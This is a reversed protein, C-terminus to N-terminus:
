IYVCIGPYRTKAVLGTNRYREDITPANLKKREGLGSLEQCVHWYVHRMGFLSAYSVTVCVWGHRIDFRSACCFKWSPLTTSGSEITYRSGYGSRSPCFHGVFITFFNFFNWKIFYQINEKSPQLCVHCFVHHMGFRSAYWVTVCLLQKMFATNHIRIWNYKRSGYGSGLPIFHGM